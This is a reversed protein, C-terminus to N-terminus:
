RLRGIEARFEALVEAANTLGRARAAEIWAAELGGTRARVEAILKADAATGRIGAEDQLRLSAVDETEWYNGFHRAAVEGSLREIAARDASPIRAWTAANMVFAFSTNYLGGPLTTRYRVLKELRFSRIAEMPFFVGDVAGSALLDYAQPAPRLMATVGLLKAVENVMGGGIRFNLGKLDSVARVPRKNNFIAGPGHTFVALVKLGRHEDFRALHRAHIRQYAVSTAVASDGLFPLEAIRTLVFREPTYGHLGFSLDVLGDRVADFTQQPAAPASPLINCRVRGETAGAVDDCWAAQARSFLHGPPVWSSATLTVQAFAGSAGGLAAVAGAVLASALM